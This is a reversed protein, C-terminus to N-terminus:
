FEASSAPLYTVVKALLQSMYCLWLCLPWLPPDDGLYWKEMM